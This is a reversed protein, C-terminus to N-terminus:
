MNYHYMFSGIYKRQYTNWKCPTVLTVGAGYAQIASRLKSSCVANSTSSVQYTRADAHAPAALILGGASLSIGAVTAALINSLKKM